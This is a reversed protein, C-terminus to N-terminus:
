VEGRMIELRREMDALRAMDREHVQDLKTLEDRIAARQRRWVTDIEIAKNRVMGLVSAAKDVYARVEDRNASLVESPSPLRDTRHAELNALSAAMSRAPETM